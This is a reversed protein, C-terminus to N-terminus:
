KRVRQGRALPASSSQARGVIRIIEMKVEPVQLAELLAAVFGDAEVHPDPPHGAVRPTM